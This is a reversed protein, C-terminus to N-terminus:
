GFFGENTLMEFEKRIDEDVDFTIIVKEIPFPPM